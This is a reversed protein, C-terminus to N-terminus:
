HEISRSISNTVYAHTSAPNVTVGFPKYAVAVSAVVAHTATDIVSVNNSGNNVVYARTGAPNIAIGLPFALAGVAITDIVKNTATDIVSVDDSGNNAVYARTGAPTIAVGRPGNGLAVTVAVTGVVADVEVRGAAGSLPADAARSNAEEFRVRAPTLQLVSFSFRYPANNLYRYLM